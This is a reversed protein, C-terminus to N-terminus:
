LSQMRHLIVRTVIPRLEWIKETTHKIAGKYVLRQADDDPHKLRNNFERLDDIPLTNDALILRVKEDFDKGETRSGDLNVADELASYLNRFTGRKDAITTGSRYADLAKTLNHNETTNSINDYVIQIKRLTDVFQSEDLTDRIGVTVSISDEIRIPSEVLYIHFGTPTKEVIAPPTPPSPKSPQKDADMIAHSPDTLTISFAAKKMTLNCALLVNHMFGNICAGDCSDLGLSRSDTVELQFLSSGDDNPKIISIHKPNVITIEINQNLGFVAPRSPDHVYVDMRITDDVM